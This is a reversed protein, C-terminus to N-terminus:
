RLNVIQWLPWRRMLTPSKAYVATSELSILIRTILKYKTNQKRQFKLNTLPHTFTSAVIKILKITLWLYQIRM